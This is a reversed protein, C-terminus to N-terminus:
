ADQSISPETLAQLQDQLVSRIHARMLREAGDPDRAAIAEVIAVHENVSAKMRGPIGETLRAIRTLHAQLNATLGKIRENAVQDYVIEDFEGLLGALQEQSGRSVVVKTQEVLSALREITEDSAIEATARAAAGELLERLEYIEKLDKKSYGSVVAGKFSASDVLGEQGLRALAGRVPTKSVGLEDAIVTERLTDGPQLRLSVIADRIEEYV